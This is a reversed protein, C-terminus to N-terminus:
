SDEGIRIPVLGRPQESVLLRLAVSRCISEDINRDPHQTHIGTRIRRAPHYFWNGHRVACFKDIRLLQERNFRVRRWGRQLRVDHTSRLLVFILLGACSEGRVRSTYVRSSASVYLYDATSTSSDYEFSSGYVDAFMETGRSMQASASAPILFFMAVLVVTKSKM